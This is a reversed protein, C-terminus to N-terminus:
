INALYKHYYHHLLCDIFFLLKYKGITEHDHNGLGIVQTFQESFKIHINQTILISTSSSMIAPLTIAKEMLLTGELSFFICLDDKNIQNAVQIQHEKRPYFEVFKGTALLGRQLINALDGPVHTAFIYVHNSEHIHTCLEDIQKKSFIEQMQVLCTSIETAYQEFDLSQFALNDLMLEQLEEHVNICDSKFDNFNEYGIKQSFRSISSQSTYCILSLEQLSSRKKISHLNKLLCRSLNIDTDDNDPSANVINQLKYIFGAM